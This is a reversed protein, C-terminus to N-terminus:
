DLDGVVVGSRFGFLGGGSSAVHCYVSSLVQEALAPEGALKGVGAAWFGSDCRQVLLRRSFM